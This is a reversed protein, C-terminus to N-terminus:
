RGLIRQETERVKVLHHRQTQHGRVRELRRELDCIDEMISAHKVELEDLTEEFGSGDEFTTTPATNMTTNTIAPPAGRRRKGVTGPRNMTGMPAESPIRTHSGNSTSRDRGHVDTNGVGSTKINTMTGMKHSLTGTLTATPTGGRLERDKGNGSNMMTMTMSISRTSLISMASGPRPSPSPSPPAESETETCEETYSETEMEKGSSSYDMDIDIDTNTRTEGETRDNDDTESAGSTTYSRASSRSSALSSRGFFKGIGSGGSVNGNGGSRSRSSTHSLSPESGSGSRSKLKYSAQPYEFRVSRGSSGTGGSRIGGRGNGKGLSSTGNGFSSYANLVRVKRGSELVRKRASAGVCDVLQKMAERDSLPRRLTGMYPTGGGTYTGANYPTRYPTSMAPRVTSGMGRPLTQYPRIPTSFAFGHASGPVGLSRLGPNPTPVPTLWSSPIRRGQGQGVGQPRSRPTGEMDMNLEMYKQSKTNPPDEEIAMHDFGEVRDEVVSESGHIFADKLPGWSFGIFAAATSMSENGEIGSDGSNQKRMRSTDHLISLGPSNQNEGRFDSNSHSDYHSRSNHRSNYQSVGPSSQFLASFAFPQSFQEEEEANVTNPVANIDNM